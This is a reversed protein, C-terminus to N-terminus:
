QLLLSDADTISGPNGMPPPLGLSFSGFISHFNFSNPNAEGKPFGPDAVSNNNKANLPDTSQSFSHEVFM